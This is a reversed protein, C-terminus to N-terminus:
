SVDCVLLIIAAILEDGTNQTPDGVREKCLSIASAYHFTYQRKQDCREMSAGPAM